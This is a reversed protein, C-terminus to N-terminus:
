SAERYMRLTFSLEARWSQGTHALGDDLRSRVLTAAVDLLHAQGHVACTVCVRRALPDDPTSLSVLRLGAM